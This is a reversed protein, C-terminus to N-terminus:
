GRGVASAQAVSLGFGAAIGHLFARLNPSTL